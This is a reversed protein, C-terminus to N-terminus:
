IPLRRSAPDAGPSPEPRPAQEAYATAEGAPLPRSFYFGQVEPYGLEVLVALQDSSEVGEVVAHLRLARCMALVSGTLAAADPDDAIDEIFARDVKVTDLPLGQLYSLSSYGTGFDDLAIRFGDGRLATLTEIATDGEEILASETVELEFRGPDLGETASLVEQVLEPELQQRSLNVSVSLDTHGAEDWARLQRAATEICWTGLARISGTTEAIPIFEAPSVAGLVPDKWRALGEFGLLAGTGPEVRPQYHLELDGAQIARRLRSAIQIRRSADVQMSAHFFRVGGPEERQARALATEAGRLLSDPDEGDAPWLSVGASPRISVEDGAVRYTGRVTAVLREVVPSATETDGVGDLIVAFREDGLRAVRDTPEDARDRDTM